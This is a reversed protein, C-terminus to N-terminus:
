FHRPPHPTFRPHNQRDGDLTVAIPARAAIVGTMAAASKGLARAHAVRRAAMGGGALRTVVGATDDTSGDDVLIIEHPTKGLAAAIEPLLEALNEAENRAPVVVTVEPPDTPAM